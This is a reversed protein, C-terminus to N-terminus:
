LYLFLLFTNLIIDNMIYIYINFLPLIFTFVFIHFKGVEKTTMNPKIPLTKSIISGTLEDPIM